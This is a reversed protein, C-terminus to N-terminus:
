SSVIRRWVGLSVNDAPISSERGDLWYYLRGLRSDIPPLTVYRNLWRFMFHLGAFEFGSAALVDQYTKLCRTRVHPALLADSAAGFRDTVLLLGGPGVRDCVFRLARDFAAGDVVHYMVDWVNVIDFTGPLDADPDSIDVVRFEAALRKKLVEVTGASIDIGCVRAGRGLYWDVFFGTGCGVDLVSKGGIAIDAFARELTRRKARYLWENYGEGFSIHGTGRLGGHRALRGEWYAKADYDATM